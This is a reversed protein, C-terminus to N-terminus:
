RNFSNGGDWDMGVFCSRFVAGNAKGVPLEARFDTGDAEGARLEARLVTGNAKGVSLKAPASNRVPAKSAWVDDLLNGTKNQLRSDNLCLLLHAREQEMVNHWPPSLSVVRELCSKQAFPALGM